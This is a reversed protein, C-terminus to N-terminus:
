LFVVVFKRNNASRTRASLNGLAMQVNTPLEGLGLGPPPAVGRQSPLLGMARNMDNLGERHAVTAAATANIAAIAANRQDMMRRAVEGLQVLEATSGIDARSAHYDLAALIAAKWKTMGVKRDDWMVYNRGQGSVGFYVDFVITWADTTSRARLPMRTHVQNADLLGFISLLQLHINRNNKIINKPGPFKQRPGAVAPLVHGAPVPLSM